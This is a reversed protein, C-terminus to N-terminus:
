RGAGKQHHGQFRARLEACPDHEPGHHAPTFWIYDFPAAYEAVDVKGEEVPTFAISRTKLESQRARLVHPLARDNRFHGRGGIMVVLAEGDVASDGAKGRAVARLLAEALRADKVRQALAMKPIMAPPLLGCHAKVLEANLAADLETSLPEGLGIETADPVASLGEKAVAFLAAPTPHAPFLKAGRAAAAEFIPRYIEFDPWGRATWQLLEGWSAPAQGLLGTLATEQREDLMEFGVEAPSLARILWAQLQHHDPHDHLEGLLLGLPAEAQASRLQQLLVAASLEAGTATEYIKGVLPHARQHPARWEPLATRPARSACGIISLAMLAVGLRALRAWSM